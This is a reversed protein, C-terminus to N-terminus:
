GAPGKVSLESPYKAFWPHMIRFKVSRGGVWLLIMGMPIIGGCLSVLVIGIDGGANLIDCFLGYGGSGGIDGRTEDAYTPSVTTVLDAYYIGGKLFNM